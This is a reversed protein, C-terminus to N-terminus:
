GKKPLIGLIKHKKAAPKLKKTIAPPPVLNLLPEVSARYSEAINIYADNRLEKLYDERAKPSREATIAERVRNENFTPTNSGATLADVRLIQYGEDTRLPDSVGGAKLDKIAAAIDPRLSPKEFVGVKGKDQPASRVGNLERESYSSAVEGFDAGGRLHAVLRTARAKVEDEKKGALSLFIESLEVVEPKLFKDKHQDFYRRQEEDSLNYFIKADVEQELVAQKMLEIRMTQRVGAPDLGNQKMAEDFKEMSNIGQEKAAEFMRKNVEDEVKKTLDLEKGKQLLLQENILTAILEAQRKNVEDTAQQETMGNQKLAEIREKSERKVTSLTIVADNIQAIVEDVVVPEGEQARSATPTLMLLGAVSLWAFILKSKM